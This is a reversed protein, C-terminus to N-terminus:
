QAEDLKEVKSVLEALSMVKERAAKKAALDAKTKRPIGKRLKARTKMDPFIDNGKWAAFLEIAWLKETASATEGEIISLLVVKM